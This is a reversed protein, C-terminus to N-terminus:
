SASREATSTLFDTPPIVDGSGGAFKLMSCSMVGGRTWTEVMTDRTFGFRDFLANQVDALVGVPIGGVLKLAVPFLYTLVSLILITRDRAAVLPLLLAGCVAYAQLIDNHWILVAHLVGIAFLV